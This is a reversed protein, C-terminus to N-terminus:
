TPGNWTDEAAKMTQPWRRYVREYLDGWAHPESEYISAEQDASFVRWRGADEATLGISAATTNPPLSVLEPGLGAIELLERLFDANVHAAFSVVTHGTVSDIARRVYRLDATTLEEDLRMAVEAAWGHLDAVPEGTSVGLLDEDPWEFAIGVPGGFRAEDVLVFLHDDRAEVGVLTLDLSEFAESNRLAALVESRAM